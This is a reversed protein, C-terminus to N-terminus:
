CSTGQKISNNPLGSADLSICRSSVGARAPSSSIEFSSGGGASTRGDGRFTVITPGTIAIGQQAEVTKLLEAQTDADDDDPYTISYGDAWNAGTPSISVPQHRKVAESRAYQLSTNLEFSVNKIRQDIIFSRFAPVAFILLIGLITISIMMEILTFGNAVLRSDHPFALKLAAM